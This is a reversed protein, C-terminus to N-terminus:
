WAGFHTLTGSAKEAGLSMCDEISRGRMIGYLFGAIYSDGAGLTDAIDACPVIGCSRFATGDYSLSGRSGRTAIIVKPGRRCLDEMKNKLTTEDPDNTSFFLYDTYPLVTQVNASDTRDACDFATRLGRRRFEGFYGEAKGWYDSVVLDHSAIFDLDGRTLRYDRLIGEDYEGLIREGNVLTVETRATKGELIRVHATDIGARNMEEIMLRGYEDNGVAGTYSAIGGMEATYVAINVPGGGPYVTKGTKGIYHDICNSGVAALKM